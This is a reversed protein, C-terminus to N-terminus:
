KPVWARLPAGSSPRTRVITAPRPAAHAIAAPYEEDEARRPATDSAVNGVEAVLQAAPTPVYGGGAGGGHPIQAEALEGERGRSCRRQAPPHGSCVDDVGVAEGHPPVRPAGAAGAAGAGGEHDRNVVRHRPGGM